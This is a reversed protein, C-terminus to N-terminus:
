TLQIGAKQAKVTLYNVFSSCSILMYKAEEYGAPVKGDLLGHRIGSADSTYGYLSKYAEVMEPHIEVTGKDKIMQLAQGLTADPKGAIKKCISEVAGISEKISNRYDPATRDSFKELASQFQESVEKSPNSLAEKIEKIETESTLKVFRKEVLRIEAKETEFIHNCEDEFKKYNTVNGYSLLFMQIFDLCLWWKENNNFQTRIANRIELEYSNISAIEAKFHEKWLKRWTKFWISDPDFWGANTQRLTIQDDFYNEYFTNYLGVRTDRDLSNVQLVKEPIIGYRVSFPKDSSM